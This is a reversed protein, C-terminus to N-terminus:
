VRLIPIVIERTITFKIVNREKIKHVEKNNPNRGIREKKRKILFSGFNTIKTSKYLKLNEIITELINNMIKEAYLNSIGIKKSISTALDKKTLNIEKNKEMLM